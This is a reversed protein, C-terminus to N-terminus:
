WYVITVESEIAPIKVILCPLSKGKATRITVHEHHVILKRKSGPHIISVMGDPGETYKFPGIKLTPM